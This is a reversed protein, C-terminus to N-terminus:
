PQVADLASLPSTFRLRFISIDIMAIQYKNEIQLSNPTRLELGVVTRVLIFQIM